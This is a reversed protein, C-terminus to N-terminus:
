AELHISDPWVQCSSVTGWVKYNRSTTAAKAVAKGLDGRFPSSSTIDKSLVDLSYDHAGTEVRLAQARLTRLGTHVARAGVDTMKIAAHKVGTKTFSVMQTDAWAGNLSQKAKRPM